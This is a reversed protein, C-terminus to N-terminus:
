SSRGEIARLTAAIAELLDQGKSSRALKELPAKAWAGGVQALHEVALGRVHDKRATLAELLVTRAAEADPGLALLKGAALVRAEQPTKKNGVAKALEDKAGLEVLASVADWAREEDTVAKVLIERGSGDGLEALAYAVDFRASADAHDLKGNLAALARSKTSAHDKGIAGLSLAAAGVVQPDRDDLAALVPEFARAPDIEVLSTVAQFRLDAPGQRLAEALPEFGGALGLTGLAIAANQRVPAVGDDLRKILHPLSGPEGLDGLSSCAEARVEPRDDDLARILADVARRKEVPDTVDGLAHAALARAKPSGSAVDRLAAEFTITQSPFLYSM